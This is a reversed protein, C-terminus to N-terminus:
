IVTTYICASVVSDVAYKGRRVALVMISPENNENDLFSFPSQRPTPQHRLNTNTDTEEENKLVNEFCIVPFVTIRDFHTKADNLTMELWKALLCDM